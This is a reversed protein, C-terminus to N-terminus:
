VNGQRAHMGSFVGLVLILVEFSCWFRFIFSQTVEWAHMWDYLSRPFLAM